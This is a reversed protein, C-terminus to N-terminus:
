KLSIIEEFKKVFDAPYLRCCYVHKGQIEWFQKPEKAREFLKKGMYYPCVKDEASHIILKPVSIKDIFNIADYRSPVVARIFFGPLFYRRKGHYTAIDDHSSFAGEIIFADFPSKEKEECMAAVACALHGGLSQGYLILKTQKVDERSRIYNVAALGSELLTEQSTEGESKGFGEYDFILSQFGNRALLIVPALNYGINGKNGHFFLVTAKIKESSNKPKILWGNINHNGSTKFNVEEYRCSSTDPLITIEKYPYYFFSSTSCSSFLVASFFVALFFTRFFNKM